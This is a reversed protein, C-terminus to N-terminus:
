NNGGTLQIASVFGGADVCIIISDKTSKNKYNSLCRGLDIIPAISFMNKNILSQVEVDDKELQNLIDNAIDFDGCLYVDATKLDINFANELACVCEKASIHGVYKSYCNKVYCIPEQSSNSEDYRNIFVIASGIEETACALIQSSNKYKISYYADIIANLGSHVGESIAYVKGRFQNWICLRSVVANGVTNTFSTPNVFNAGKEEISLNFEASPYTASSYSGAIVSLNYKDIDGFAGENEAFKAAAELTLSQRDVLRTNLNGLFQTLKEISCFNINGSRGNIEKVFDHTKMYNFGFDEIYYFASVIAVKEM